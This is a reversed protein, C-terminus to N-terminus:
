CRLHAESLGSGHLKASNRPVEQSAAAAEPLSLGMQVGFAYESSSM